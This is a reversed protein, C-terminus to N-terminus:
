LRPLTALLAHLTALTSRDAIGDIKAPRFHRQFARVVAETVECFRGSVPVGYGYLALMAQLAEVPQGEEGRQLFQGGGIPAPPVLHAVGAEALRTWPFLEGPDEKRMPAIDSHALVNWPAIGRRSSIDALLAVVADIQSPPFPRYGHAHGPNVIEVGLSHSNLDTIGRWSSVGAHWARREEPVLRLTRGDEFVFYHASVGSEPDRLRALAGDADPMGTYHLIVFEIRAGPAREGHNPSPAEEVAGEPM